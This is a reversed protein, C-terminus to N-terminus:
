FERLSPLEGINEYIHWPSGGEFSITKLKKLNRISDSMFLHLDGLGCLVSYGSTISKVNEFKFINSPVKCAIYLHSVNRYVFPNFDFANRDSDSELVLGLTKVRKLNSITTSDVKVMGNELLLNETIMELEEVSRGNSYVYELQAFSPFTTLIFLCFLYKTTSEHMDPFYGFYQQNTVCLFFGWM